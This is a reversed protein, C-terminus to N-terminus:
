LLLFSLTVINRDPRSNEARAQLFQSSRARRAQQFFNSNEPSLIPICSSQIKMLFNPYKLRISLGYNMLILLLFFSVSKYLSLGSMLITPFFTSTLRRSKSVNSLFLTKMKKYPFQPEGSISHPRWHFQYPFYIRYNEKMQRWASHELAFVKRM